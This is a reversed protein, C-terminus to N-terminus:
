IFVRCSADSTASAVRQVRLRWREVVNAWPLRVGGPAGAGVSFVSSWTSGRVAM